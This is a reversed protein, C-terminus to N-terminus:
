KLTQIVSINDFDFWVTDDWLAGTAPDVYPLLDFEIVLNEGAYKSGAPLSFAATKKAWNNGWGPFPGTSIKVTDIPVRTTPDNGSYASFIVGITGAYGNGWDTWDYNGDFSIAYDSAASPVKGVTQYFSKSTSYTWVFDTYGWYSSTKRGIHAANTEETKWDQVSNIDTVGPDGPLSFDGNTILQVPVSATFKVVDGYHPKGNNIVYARAYYIKGSILGMIGASFHGTDNGAAVAKNNGITPMQTSDSNWCIGRESIAKKGVLDVDGGGTASISTINAMESTSVFVTTQFPNDKKCGSIFPLMAALFGALFINKYM